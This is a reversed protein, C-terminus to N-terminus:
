PIFYESILVTEIGGCTKQIQYNFKIRAPFNLSYLQQNSMFPLSDIRFNGARNDITLIVGGCCPCLAYDIGTLTGESQFTIQKKCSFFLLSAFLILIVNKM